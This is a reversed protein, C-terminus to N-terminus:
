LILAMIVSVSMDAGQFVGAWSLADTVNKTRSRVIKTRVVLIGAAQM